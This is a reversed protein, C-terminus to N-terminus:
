RSAHVTIYGRSKDFALDGSSGGLRFFDGINCAVKYKEYRQYALSGEKKPNAQLLKIRKSVGGARVASGIWHNVGRKIKAKVSRKATAKAKAKGLFKGNRGKATKPTTARSGQRPKARPRLNDSYGETWTEDVKELEFQRGKFMLNKFARTDRDDKFFLGTNGGVCHLERISLTSRGDRSRGDFVLKEFPKSKAESAPPVVLYVADFHFSGAAKRSLDHFLEKVEQTSALQRSAVEPIGLPQDSPTEPLLEVPERMIFLAEKSRIAHCLVFLPRLEPQRLVHRFREVARAFSDHDEKQLPNHHPWVVSRSSSPLMQSYTQHGLGKMTDCTNEVLPRFIKKIDLFEKFDDRIAHRVMYPSSYIWDFPLKCKRLNQLEFFKATFCITGLSVVSGFCETADSAVDSAPKRLPVCGSLSITSKGVSDTARATPASNAAAPRRLPM